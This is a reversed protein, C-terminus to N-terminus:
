ATAGIVLWEDQALRLLTVVGYQQAINYLSDPHRLTVGAGAVLSTVGAGYQCVGFQANDPWVVDAQPPVTVNNASGSTQVIIKGMDTLAATTHGAQSNQPQLGGAIDWVVGATDTCSLRGLSDPGTKM